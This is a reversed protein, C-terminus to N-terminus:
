PWSCESLDAEDFLVEWTVEVVLAVSAVLAAKSQNVDLVSEVVERLVRVVEDGVLMSGVLAAKSQNVDAVSEALEPPLPM